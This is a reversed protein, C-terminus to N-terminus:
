RTGGNGYVLTDDRMDRAGVPQVQTRRPAHRVRAVQAVDWSPGTGVRGGDVGDGGGYTNALGDVVASGRAAFGGHASGTRPGGERGRGPHAVPKGRRVDARGEGHLRRRVTVVLIVLAMVGGGAVVAAVYWRLYEWSWSWVRVDARVPDGTGGAGAVHARPSGCVGPAGSAGAVPGQPAPVQLSALVPSCLVVSGGGQRGVVQEEYGLSADCSGCDTGGYGRACVCAGSRPDCAGNGGCPELRGVRTPTPCLQPVACDGGSTDPAEGLECLGNGPIGRVSVAPLGSPEAVAGEAAAVLTAELYAAALQAATYVTGSRSDDGRVEYAVDVQAVLRADLINRRHPDMSRADSTGWAEATHSTAPWDTRTATRRVDRKHSGTGVFANPSGGDLAVSRRIAFDVAVAAVVVGPLRAQLLETVRDARGGWPLDLTGLVRRACSSGDGRCVGCEDVLLASECCQRTSTLFGSPDDAVCCAGVADLGLM